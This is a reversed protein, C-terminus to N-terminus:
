NIGQRTAAVRLSDLHAELDALQRQIQDIRATIQENDHQAEDLLAQIALAEEASLRTSQEANYISRMRRTRVKLRRALEYIRYKHNGLPWSTAAYQRLDQATAELMNRGAKKLKTLKASM